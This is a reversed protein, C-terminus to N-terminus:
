PRMVGMENAIAQLDYVLIASLITGISTILAINARFFAVRVPNCNEDDSMQTSLADLLTDSTLLTEKKEEDKEVSALTLNMM